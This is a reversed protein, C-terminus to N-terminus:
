WSKNKFQEDSTTWENLVQEWSTWSKDIVQERIKVKHNTWYECNVIQQNIRLKKWSKDM